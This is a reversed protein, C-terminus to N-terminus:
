HFEIFASQTLSHGTSLAAFLRTAGPRVSAIRFLRTGRYDHDARDLLGQNPTPIRLTAQNNITVVPASMTNLNLTGTGHDFGTHHDFQDCLATYSTESIIQDDEPRSTHLSFKCGEAPKGATDILRVLILAFRNRNALVGARRTWQSDHDLVLIESKELDVNVEREKWRWRISLNRRVSSPSSDRYFLRNLGTELFPLSRPNCLFISTIDFYRPVQQSPNKIEIRCHFYVRGQFASSLDLTQRDSSPNNSFRIPTKEEGPFVAIEWNSNPETEFSLKAGVLGYPSQIPWSFSGSQFTQRIKPDNLDPQYILFGNGFVHPREYQPKPYVGTNSGYMHCPLGSSLQRPQGNEFTTAGVNQFSRLISEGPRLLFRMDHGQRLHFPSQDEYFRNDDLTDVMAAYERAPFGSALIGNPMACSDIIRNHSNNQLEDLDALRGPNQLSYVPGRIGDADIMYWHRTDLGTIEGASNRLPLRTMCVTHGKWTFAQAAGSWGMAEILQIAAATFHGCSCCGLSNYNYIPNGPLNYFVPGQDLDTAGTTHLLHSSLFRTIRILCETDSINPPLIQELIRPCSFGDINHDSWLWPTDIPESGHNTIEFDLNDPEANGGVPIELTQFGSATITFTKEKM